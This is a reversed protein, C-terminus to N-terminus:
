YVGKTEAPESTTNGAVLPMAMASEHELVALESGVKLIELNLQSLVEDDDPEFTCPHPTGVRDELQCKLEEEVVPTSHKRKPSVDILAGDTTSSSVEEKDNQNRPSCSRFNRDRAYHAQAKAWNMPRRAHRMKSSPLSTIEISSEAGSSNSETPSVARVNRLLQPDPPPFLPGHIRTRVLDQAEALTLSCNSPILAPRRARIYSSSTVDSFNPSTIHHQNVCAM